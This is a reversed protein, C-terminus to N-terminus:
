TAMIQSRDIMRSELCDMSENTICVYLLQKSVLKRANADLKKQICALHLQGDWPPFEQGLTFFCM